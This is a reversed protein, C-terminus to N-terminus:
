VRGGQEGGKKIAQGIADAMRRDGTDIAERLTAPAFIGSMAIGVYALSRSIEKETMGAMDPDSVIFEVLKRGAACVASEGQVSGEVVQKLWWAPNGREVQHPCTPECNEQGCSTCYEKRFAEDWPGGTTPISALFAGLTEPSATLKDFNTM